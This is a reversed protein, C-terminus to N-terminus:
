RMIEYTKGLSKCIFWDGDLNRFGYDCLASYAEEYSDFGAFVVPGSGSMGSDNARSSFFDLLKKVDPCLESAIATFDKGTKDLLDYMNKTDMRRHPRAILYFSSPIKGSPSVIEGVGSVDATGIGSIFFPIDSGIGKGVEIMAEHSLGLSFLENLGIITAAADSSGGGMGSSIPLGKMIHIDCPLDKGIHKELAVKAKTVLDDESKCTLSGCLSYSESKCIEIIDYIDVAQFISKIDHYGDPRKDMVELELNIKAFAKITIAKNRCSNNDMNRYLSNAIITDTPYTMKINEPNGDILKIKGGIREVLSSDDTGRFGDSAASDYAKLLIDARFSQPTQIRFLHDRDITRDVIGSNKIETKITDIEPMFPIGGDNEICASLTKMILHESFLPRAVDHILILDGPYIRDRITDLANLVSDQRSDGGEVIQINAYAAIIDTVSHIQDNRCVVIIEDIQGSGALKELIIELSTRGCIDIFAKDPNNMRTGNGAGVVIAYNM